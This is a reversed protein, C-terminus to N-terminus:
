MSKKYPAMNCRKLAARIPDYESDVAPVFGNILMRKLVKLLEGEVQVTEDAKLGLALDRVQKRLAPDVSPAAGLTCYPMPESEAIITFDDLEIIGADAMRDLDIRPAAGVDYTGFLVGYIVKDHKASGAPIAYYSFDSEPDFGKDLLMAYQAMYGFPALSPGFVMRKGRMDDITTIGSEKLAILTGSAKYGYRGQIDVALLEAQYKEKLLVAIISNVHFFDVKNEKILDEFDFTNALIMEVPRGIKEALYATFPAFRAKSAEYSDCIMYGIRIPAKDAAASHAPSPGLGTLVLVSAFLLLLIKKM